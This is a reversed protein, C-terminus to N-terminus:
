QFELKQTELRKDITFLVLYYHCVSNFISFRWKTRNIQQDLKSFVKVLMM